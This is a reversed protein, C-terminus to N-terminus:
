DDDKNAHGAEKAASEDDEITPKSGLVTANINLQVWVKTKEPGSSNELEVLLKKSGKWGYSRTNFVSPALVVHGMFGPDKSAAAVQDIPPPTHTLNVHLPLAADKFEAQSPLKNKESKTGGKVGKAKPKPSTPGKERRVAKAARSPRAELSESIQEEAEIKRKPPM